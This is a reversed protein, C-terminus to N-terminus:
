AAKESAKVEPDFTIYMRKIGNVLNSRTYAIDGVLKPNRMRPIIEEFMVRM